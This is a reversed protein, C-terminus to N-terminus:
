AAGHGSACRPVRAGDPRGAYSAPTLRPACFPAPPLGLDPAPERLAVPVAMIRGGQDLYFIERGDARWRPAFGAAAGSVHWKGGNVNPFPRGYIANRGAEDSTYVMWREDPSLRDLAPPTVAGVSSLAPPDDRLIAGILSAQTGAVFAKRGTIMEFLMAGFAFIDTRADVDLAELQEPAM